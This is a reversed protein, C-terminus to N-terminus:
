RSRGSESIFWTWLPMQDNDSIKDQVEKTQRSTEDAPVSGLREHLAADFDRQGMGAPVFIIVMRNM